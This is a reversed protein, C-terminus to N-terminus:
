FQFIKNGNHWIIVIEEIKRLNELFNKNNGLTKNKM